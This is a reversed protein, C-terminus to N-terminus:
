KVALVPYDVNGIRIVKHGHCAIRYEVKCFRYIHRSVGFGLLPLCDCITVRRLVALEYKGDGRGSHVATGRARRATGAPLIYSEEVLRFFCFFGSVPGAQAAARLSNATRLRIQDLGHAAIDLTVEVFRDGERLQSSLKVLAREM